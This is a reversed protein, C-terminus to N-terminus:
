HHGNRIRGYHLAQGLAHRRVTEGASNRSIVGIVGLPEGQVQTTYGEFGHTDMVAAM